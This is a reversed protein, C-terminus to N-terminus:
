LLGNELALERLRDKAREFRKRLAAARTTIDDNGGRIRAIEKWSMQRDLRLLLLEHDEPDLQARLVALEDRVETKNYAATATRLQEAIASVEVASLGAHRAPSRRPDRRLRHLANRALMYCWSRLSAEWRFQALGRWLDEGLQAFAEAGLDDDRATARLFGYIESGYIQLAATAAGQLDERDIRARVIAEGEPNAPM